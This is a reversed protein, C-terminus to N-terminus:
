QSLLIFVAVVKNVKKQINLSTLFHEVAERYVKLNVCSIGLNYRARVYGPSLELAHRYAEVAEESRGGNALTAGLKNWILADQPNTQLAAQFCDVAKDYEASLNFLVGLGIKLVRFRSLVHCTASCNKIM